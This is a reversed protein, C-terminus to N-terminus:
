GDLLSQLTPGVLAVVEDAPASALPEVRFVYRLFILGLVQTMVAAARLEARPGQITPTLRVLIQREIFDRLMDAQSSASRLIALLPEGTAPNDWVQLVRGVLRVGLDDTGEALLGDVAEAPNVPLRLSEIFLGGKSGFYYSVLAVDVGADAAIARLTARDYGDRAFRERAAALIADKAQVGDRRPGRRKKGSQKM